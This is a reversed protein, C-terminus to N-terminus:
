RDRHNDESLNNHWLKLPCQTQGACAFVFLGYIAAEVRNRVNLKRLIDELHRKVTFPSINMAAAIEKNTKAQSVLNLVRKETASLTTRAM